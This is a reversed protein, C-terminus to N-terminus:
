NGGSKPGGIPPPDIGVAAMGLCSERCTGDKGSNGVGMPGFTGSRWCGPDGGLPVVGGPVVGGPVVGGPVVGGFGVGGGGGGGGEVSMAM